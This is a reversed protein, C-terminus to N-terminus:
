AGPPQAAMSPCGWSLHPAPPTAKPTPPCLSPPTVAHGRLSTPSVCSCPCTSAMSPRNSKSRKGNPLMRARMGKWTLVPGAAGRWAGVVGRWARSLMGVWRLGARGGGHVGDVVDVGPPLHHLEPVWDAAPLPSLPSSGPHQAWASVRRGRRSGAGVGPHQVWAPTRCGSPSGSSLGLGQVWAPTGRHLWAGVGPDQVWAPTSGGWVCVPTLLAAEGTELCKQGRPLSPVSRPSPAAPPRFVKGRSAGTGAHGTGTQVLGTGPRSRSGFRRARPGSRVGAWGLLSLPPAGYM